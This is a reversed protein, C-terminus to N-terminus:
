PLFYRFFASALWGATLAVAISLLGYLWSMETAMWYIWRELGVKRVLISTHFVDLVQRDRLLFIRALYDGETLKAPLDITARFLTDEIIDVGGEKVFYLGEDRRIRMLAQRYADPDEVWLPADILRVANELGVKYRLDDTFSMAEHFPRSTAVVYLSPASDIQVAEGNIWIGAVREKKRLKVPEPPGTVAVVIDLQQDAPAPEERKTAGFVFIESGTFGTTIAVRTQSLAAVVEEGEAALPWLLLLLALLRRM